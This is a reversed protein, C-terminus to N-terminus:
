NSQLHICSKNENEAVFILERLSIRKSIHNFNSGGGTRAANDGSSRQGGQQPQDGGGGGLSFIIELDSLDGGNM